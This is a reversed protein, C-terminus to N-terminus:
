CGECTTGGPRMCRGKWVRICGPQPDYGDAPRRFMLEDPVAPRRAPARFREDWSTPRVASAPMFVARGRRLQQPVEPDWTVEPWDPRISTDRYREGVLLGEGRALRRLAKTVEDKVAQVPDGLPSLDFWEGRVRYEKFVAHLHREMQGDGEGAWRVVLREPNGTQLTGIRDKPQNTTHGIKVISSDEPAIVYIM